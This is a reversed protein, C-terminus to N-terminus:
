KCLIQVFVINIKLQFQIPLLSDSLRFRVMKNLKIYKIEKNKMLLDLKGISINLLDCVGKKDLLNDSM